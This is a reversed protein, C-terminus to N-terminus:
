EQAADYAQAADYEQAAGHGHVADPGTQPRIARGTRHSEYLHKVRPTLLTDAYATRM